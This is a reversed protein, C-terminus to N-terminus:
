FNELFITSRSRSKRGRQHEKAREKMTTAPLPDKVKSYLHDLASYNFGWWWIISSRHITANEL